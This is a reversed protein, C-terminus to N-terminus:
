QSVSLKVTQIECFMALIQGTVTECTMILPWPSIHYSRLTKEVFLPASAWEDFCLYENPEKDRTRVPNMSM